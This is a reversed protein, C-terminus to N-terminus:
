GNRIAEDDYEVQPFGSNPSRAFKVALVARGVLSARADDTMRADNALPNKEIEPPPLRDLYAAIAPNNAKPIYGVHKGDVWVQVANADFRNGPERVLYALAGAQIGALYSDLGRFKAGVISLRQVAM